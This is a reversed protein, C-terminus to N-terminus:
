CEKGKEHQSKILALIPKAIEIFAAFLNEEEEDTLRASAILDNFEERSTGFLSDPLTIASHDITPLLAAPQQLTPMPGIARKLKKRGRKKPPMRRGYIDQLPVDLADALKVLYEERPNVTRNHEIESLYQPRVEAREALEGSSLERFIRWARIVDGITPITTATTQAM